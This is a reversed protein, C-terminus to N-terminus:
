WWGNARKYERDEVEELTEEWMDEDEPEYEYCGCGVCIDDENFEWSYEWEDDIIIIVFHGNRITSDYKDYLWCEDILSDVQFMDMGEFRDENEYFMKEIRMKNM